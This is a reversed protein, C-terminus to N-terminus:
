RRWSATKPSSPEETGKGASANKAAKELIQHLSERNREELESFSGWVPYEPPVKTTVANLGEAKTVKKTTEQAIGTGLLLAALAVPGLIATSRFGHFIKM